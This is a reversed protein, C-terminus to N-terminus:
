RLRAEVKYDQEVNQWEGKYKPYRWIRLRQKVCEGLPGGDQDRRDMRPADVRGDNLITWRVKYTETEHPRLRQAQANFCEELSVGYHENVMKVKDHPLGTGPETQRSFDHFFYRGLMSKELKRCAGPSSKAELAACAQDLAPTRAYPREEPPMLQAKLEVEKLAAKAAATPDKLKLYAPVLAKFARRQVDACRPEPCAKSAPGLLAVVKQPSAGKAKAMAQVLGARAAMLRDGMRRFTGAASSLCDQPEGAAEAREVCDAAKRLQAAKDKTGAEDMAALARHQCARPKEPGCATYWREAARRALAQDRRAAGVSYAQQLAEQQAPPSAGKLLKFVDKAAAGASDLDGAQQAQKLEAVKAALAKDAPTQPEEVRPASIVRPPPVGDLLNGDKSAPKSPAKNPSDFADELEKEDTALDPAEQAHGRISLAGLALALLLHSHLALWGIAPKQM